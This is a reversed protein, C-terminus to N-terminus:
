TLHSSLCRAHKARTLPTVADWECAASRAADPPLANAAATSPACSCRCLAESPERALAVGPPVGRMACEWVDEGDAERSLSWRSSRSM